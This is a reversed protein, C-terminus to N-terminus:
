RKNEWEKYKINKLDEKFALISADDKKIKEEVIKIYERSRDTYTKTKEFGIYNRNTLIAAIATTGSGSFTDLVIDGENSWSLIQDRALELPFKAEHDRKVINSYKECNGVSYTFINERIASDAVEGNKHQPSYKDSNDQIYTSKNRKKGANKCERTIMNTTKPAKKSFVFMYEFAQEYRKHNKPPANKKAFIMTDYLYFGKNTFALAQRFSTTSETKITKDNVVWVIVGGDKMVRYLENIIIDLDFEYNNNKKNDNEDENDDNKEEYRRIDDYPPSTVVLDISKDKLYTLGEEAKINVITNLDLNFM